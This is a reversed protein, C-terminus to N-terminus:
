PAPAAMPAVKQFRAPLLVRRFILLLDDWAPRSTSRLIALYVPTGVIGVIAVLILVPVGAGALAESLPYTLALVASSALVAPAIDLFLQRVTVGVLPSLMLGYSGILTMMQFIAVAVCVASLGWSSAVLVMVGLTLVRYLNFYLLARPKGAALLVAPTQNNIMRAMGAVTLIQAPVVAPEWQEGFLWPV